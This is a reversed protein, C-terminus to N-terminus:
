TVSRDRMTRSAARCHPDFLRNGTPWGISIVTGGPPVVNMSNIGRWAPGFPLWALVRPAFHARFMLPCDLVSDCWAAIDQRLDYHKQKRGAVIRRCIQDNPIGGTKNRLPRHAFSSGPGDLRQGM